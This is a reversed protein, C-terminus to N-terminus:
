APDLREEIGQVHGAGVFALVEGYDQELLELRQAMVRNREEVLVRHMGPFGVRFRLLMEDVLEQEPVESLELDKGRLLFPSVLIFGAFKVKELAPVEKLRQLTIRIDQDILATDIGEAEAARFAELMDSGPAVGASKGLLDQVTKLLLLFLSGPKTERSGHLLAQLRLPDLELAVVAPETEEVEQRISELDDGAVHSTGRLEIM